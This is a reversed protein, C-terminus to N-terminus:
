SGCRVWRKSTNGCPKSFGHDKLWRCIIERSRDTATMIEDTYVGGSKDILSNVAEEITQMSIM